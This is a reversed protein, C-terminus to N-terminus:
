DAKYMFQHDEPLATRLCQCLTNFEKLAPPASRLEFLHLLSRANCTLQLTTTVCEPLIYKATDNGYWKQMYDAMSLCAGICLEYNERDKESLKDPTHFGTEGALIRKLAWRTSQVSLSMGVRHRALEQLLARSVDEIYFTYVVHELVSHHGSAVLKKIFTAMKDSPECSELKDETNTCVRAGHEILWLPSHHLLTVKM